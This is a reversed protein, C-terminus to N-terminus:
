VEGRDTKYLIGRPVNERNRTGYNCVYIQMYLSQNPLLLNYVDVMGSIGDVPISGLREYSLKTGDETCLCSLYRRDNGFGNVFIPKDPVLGYDKDDLYLDQIEINQASNEKVYVMFKEMNEVSNWLEPEYQYIIALSFRVCNSVNLAPYDSFREVLREKIYSPTRFSIDLGGRSRIWVQIYIDRCILMVEPATSQFADKALTILIRQANELGGYFIKDRVNLDVGDYLKSVVENVLDEKTQEKKKNRILGSFFGSKRPKDHLGNQFSKRKEM